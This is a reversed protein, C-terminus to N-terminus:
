SEDLFLRLVRRLSTYKMLRFALTDTAGSPSRFYGIIRNPGPLISARGPL